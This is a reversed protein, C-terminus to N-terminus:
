DKTPFPFRLTSDVWVDGAFSCLWDARCNTYARVCMAALCFGWGGADLQWRPVSPASREDPPREDARLSCCRCCAMSQPSGGSRQLPALSPVAGGQCPLGRTSTLLGPYFFARSWPSVSDFNSALDLIQYLPNSRLSKARPLKTTSLYM